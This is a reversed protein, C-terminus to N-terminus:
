VHRQRRAYEQLRGGCAFRREGLEHARMDAAGLADGIQEAADAGEGQPQGLLRADGGGVAVLGRHGRELAGGGCPASACARSSALLVTGTTTATDQSAAVKARSARM